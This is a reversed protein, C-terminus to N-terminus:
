KKEILKIEQKNNKYDINVSDIIFDKNVITTDKYLGFIRNDNRLSLNLIISPSSYQNVLKYILHEEQRLGKASAAEDDFAVWEAEGAQCSCNYTKDLFQFKDGSRYAVASYNPKKNDWTAIKFKIEKLETVFEDNIINTYVTDTNSNESFTPDSVVAKIEFDKLFVCNFKYHQGKNDGSKASHFNPDFPKFVTLTPLGSIVEQNPMKILYGKEKTGIRWNVTNPISLPKYMTNDARRESKSAGSKIFPIKFTCITNVWETGNWFLAGWQLRALLYAQGDDIAYRGERIDCEGEPIPYPDDSMYHYIVDGSIILYSNQGGFLASTDTVVTSFYPFQEIRSNDIHFNPPNLMVIYNKFDVNTVGNEALLADLYAARSNANTLGYINSFIWGRYYDMARNELKKVYFKAITAGYMNKTDTYNLSKVLHTKDTGTEGSYKYFKYYPNNFYKVFVANFAGYEKKQPNYVRDVMVIMNNNAKDTNGLENKVVEGWMGNEAWEATQLATDSDKTINELTGYMDPLVKDFTYLDAKVSVKNYVNDLSLTAGSESYDEATITKSFSITELTPAAADDVSYKYYTNRGHKIADYDLFYVSDGDAVATLGLYQCIEELVEQMTWAVEDDTEEDEKKDFFNEESIFLKDLIPETGNKQLQINNSVYFNKYANCSQLLKRIINLFSSVAKRDTNYKIYQLTSLADICEIEVEEREEVFGMDYLNPTTYGTWVVAGSEDTLVVKTGQAKPSYIDFNYDPTIITVTATQYKVPCYIVKDDSDMETVFPNGGLTVTRTQNGSNTSITVKYVKNNIDAFSGSYIM